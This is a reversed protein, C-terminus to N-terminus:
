VSFKEENAVDFKYGVGRVTKIYQPHKSDPEIKERLRSIYVDLVKTGAEVDYGWLTDLLYDRKLVRGRAQVLLGLLEFEKVTLDLRRDKFFAEYTDFNITFPGAQILTVQSESSSQRTRRLIAKVRAMLERISFPKTVYDDAGLELGVVKDIEDDKATLMIIPIDINQRRLQRCLELGDIGPLMLDLIVLDPKEKKILELAQLGDYAAIVEYGEKRLNHTLLRVLAEEDDVVMIRFM